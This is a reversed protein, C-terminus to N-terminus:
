RLVLPSVYWFVNEQCGPFQDRSANRLAEIGGVLVGRSLKFQIRDRLQAKREVLGTVEEGAPRMKVM